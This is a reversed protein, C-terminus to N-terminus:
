GTRREPIQTYIAATFGAAALIASVTKQYLPPVVLQRTQDHGRIVVLPRLHHLIEQGTPRALRGRSPTPLPPGQRVRRELLSLVLCALLLVDGLAEVREPKQVFLADVFAPDKLFHFRQEIVTQGKYEELLRRADFDEAALNTILVFTSARERAAQLRDPDPSGVTPQVRYRTITPPAPAQARPRGRTPRKQPVTEAVVTTSVTHWVATAQWQAGAAEADAACAFTRAGFAAATRTLQQFERTVARDLTQAKRRDLHSSRYVVLRYDRGEIQGHQESAQYTAADARVGIRGLPRWVDAAWAAAKVDAAVHYTDPLRSLFRLQREALLELNPGTVLASDAVYVLQRLQTPSFDDDLAAVMEANLTKDSRNGEQVTGVVPIGERTGLLTLIMPRLDPRHDKSHGYAPTVGSGSGADPYTGYVSRTTSDWHVFLPGDPYWVRDHLLARAAVASFVTAGGAAAIKDLARGLADDTLDTATIGAGLLLPTDTLALPEHVRYLPQRATLVNIVLALIREGPSLHCREPDWQVCQDIAAVLGIEECLARIVPGAGVIDPTNM